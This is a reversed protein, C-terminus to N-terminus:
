SMESLFADKVFALNDSFILKRPGLKLALMGDQGYKEMLNMVAEQTNKYGWLYYAHGILPLPWPPSAPYNPPPKSIYLWLLLGLIPVLLLEVIM